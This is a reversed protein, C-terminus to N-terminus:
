KQHCAHEGRVRNLDMLDLGPLDDDVEAGYDFFEDLIGEIRM